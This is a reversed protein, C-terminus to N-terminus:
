GVVAYDGSISVAGGFWDNDEADPATIKVGADWTTIGTRHFIYAAGRDSGAGDEYCAGVIAYDGSISVTSLMDNDEADPAIIKVGTDWTNIGTRHFIYAAGRFTGAGNEFFAGVIAYDGSISVSMGFWDGDEADPAIIKVGADWTTIGTRHFIYAAGRDSGAGDETCAGVIAYDGSISVSYGFWDNDEADPAIIKQIESPTPYGMAGTLLNFDDCTFYAFALFIILILRFFITNKKM